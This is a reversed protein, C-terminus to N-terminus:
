QGAQAASQMMAIREQMHRTLHPTIGLMREVVMLQGRHHMEHEKPAILMEFRSKVRPEMGEPYEVQEGLFAESAQELFNAYKEGESRLLELVQSKTRPTNVEAQLGGMVGFFDFGVLTSRHEVAHIQEQVRSMVAIHVLTETISRCGEAVRFAYKEEPIEDAIKITNDRVTRFSRALEKAGYYTM